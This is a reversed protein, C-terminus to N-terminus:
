NFMISALRWAKRPGGGHRLIPMARSPSHQVRVDDNGAGHGAGAVRDALM